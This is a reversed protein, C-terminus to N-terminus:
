YQTKQQLDYTVLNPLCRYVQETVAYNADISIYLYPQASLKKQANEKKKLFNFFSPIKCGQLHIWGLILSAPALPKM